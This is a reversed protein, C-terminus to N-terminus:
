ATGTTVGTVALEGVAAGATDGTLAAITTGTAGPIVRGGIDTRRRAGGAATTTDTAGGAHATHLGATAPGRGTGGTDTAVTTVTRVAM